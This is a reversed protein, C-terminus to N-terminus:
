KLINRMRYVLYWLYIRFNQRRVYEKVTHKTVTDFAYKKEYKALQRGWHRSYASSPVGYEDAIFRVVELGELFTRGQHESQITTNSYHQRYYSHAEQVCLVSTQSCLQVYFMWDGCYHMKRFLSANVGAYLEKRFVTMSVNYIDNQFLLHRCNYSKGDCVLTKGTEEPCWERDPYIYKALTFGLGCEPHKELGNMLTDLFDADAWDDSEAIWIWEGKALNIGKDWQIFPSGSNKENFVVQSVHPNDKYSLLIGRSDDTSCDDLLILEFDQFTQNLVSDIRQRLFPAHNFNPVIVSVKPM